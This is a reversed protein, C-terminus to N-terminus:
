AAEDTEPEDDTPDDDTDVTAPAEAEGEALVESLKQAKPAHEENIQRLKALATNAIHKLMDGHASAKEHVHLLAAVEDMDAM